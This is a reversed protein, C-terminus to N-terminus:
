VRFGSQKTESLQGWNAESLNRDNAKSHSNSCTVDLGPCGYDLPLASFATFVM